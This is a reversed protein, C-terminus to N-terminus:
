LQMSVYFGIVVVRYILSNYFKESISLCTFFVKPMNNLNVKAFCNVTVDM